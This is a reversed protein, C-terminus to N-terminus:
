LLYLNPHLTMMFDLNGQIVDMVFESTTCDYLSCLRSPDSGILRKKAQHTRLPLPGM